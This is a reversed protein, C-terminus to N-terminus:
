PAVALGKLTVNGIDGVKTAAGTMLNITYLGSTGGAPTLAAYATGAATPAIDFAADSTTNVGLLGVTTLVGENPPDVRVLADRAADIAFLTTSTAGATSNTYATAAVMPDSGAGADDPAYALDVDPQIGEVTANFDVVVGTEQNLRLNQEADSHVRIRNVTPNFDVGFASGNLTPTFANPNLATAAGTTTSVSYIRNSSGVGILTGGPRTASGPEFDIGILVENSQLGTIPMSTVSRSPNNSGFKVLTNSTTLGYLVSGSPAEAGSNPTSTSCAALTVLLATLSLTTRLM